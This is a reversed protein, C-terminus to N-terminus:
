RLCDPRADVNGDRDAQSVYRKDLWMERNVRRVRVVQEARHDHAIRGRAHGIRLIPLLHAACGKHREVASRVPLTVIEGDRIATVRPDRDRGITLGHEGGRTAICLQRLLSPGPEDHVV